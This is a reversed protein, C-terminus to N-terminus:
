SHGCILNSKGFTGIDFTKKYFDKELQTSM